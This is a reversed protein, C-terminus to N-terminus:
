RDCESPQLFTDSMRLFAQGTCLYAMLRHRLAEFLYVSPWYQRNTTRYGWLGASVFLGSSSELVSANPNAKGVQPQHPNVEANILYTINLYPNGVVARVGRFGRQVQQNM